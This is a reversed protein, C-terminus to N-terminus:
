HTKATRLTDQGCRFLSAEPYGKKDSDVIANGCSRQGGCLDMLSLREGYSLWLTLPESVRVRDGKLWLSVSSQRVSYPKRTMERLKIQEESFM